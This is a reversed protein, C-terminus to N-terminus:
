EVTIDEGQLTIKEDLANSAGASMQTIEVASPQCNSIKYTKIV